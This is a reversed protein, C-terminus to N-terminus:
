PFTELVHCIRFDADSVVGIVEQVTDSM